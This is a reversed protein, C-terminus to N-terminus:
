TELTRHVARNTGNGPSEMRKRCARYLHSLHAGPPVVVAAVRQHWAHQRPQKRWFRYDRSAAIRDSACPLWASRYLALTPPRDEILPAVITPPNATAIAVSLVVGKDKQYSM